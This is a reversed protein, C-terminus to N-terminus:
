PRQRGPTDLFLEEGHATGLYATQVEESARVQEPTGTLLHRGLHLVTVRDAVGFVVDLDHEVLLVTVEAPLDLVLATLRETEAASMGAAPEDLLLLTPRTALAVAVELQRREGHSLAAAPQAERGALGAEALLDASRDLLDTRRRVPRLFDWGGGERRLVSLLVNELASERLFLSSHQFTTAVGLGVRRHVPMRTVDQGHVLVQGSTPRRTGTVVSFLTSKGAGNPGILARREGRPVDLDVDALADLSGFRVGLGRVSLV